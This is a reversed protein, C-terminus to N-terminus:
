ALGMAYRMFSRKLAPMRQVAGLGFRRALRVPVVDNSFLANLGDTAASMAFVDARRAAAYRELGASDGPDDRRICSALAAADRVGLNFGQGAIPHIGHASDGVLAVRPFVSPRVTMLSLPYAYRQGIVRFDGLHPGFRERAVAAFMADDLALLRPADATRVTWVLSSRHPADPQPTMPLMALPGDPLFREHAVAEHRREHGIVCTVATQGYRKVWRRGNMRRRVASERGDCAVLLRAGLVAGDALRLRVAQADVQLGDDALAVGYRAHVGSREELADILGSRISANEVIYGLPEAEGAFAASSFDLVGFGDGDTVCIDEIPQANPAIADWVGLDEFIAKAGRNVASARGDRRQMRMAQPEARDIIVVRLGADHLAIAATAGVLGGGLVCADFTEKEANM